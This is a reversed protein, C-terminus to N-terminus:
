TQLCSLCFSSVRRIGIMMTVAEPSSSLRVRPISAPASSRERLRDVPHLQIGANPGEEFQLLEGILELIGLRDEDTEGQSNIMRVCGSTPSRIQWGRRDICSTRGIM